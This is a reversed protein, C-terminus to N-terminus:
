RFWYGLILGIFGAILERINQNIETQTLLWFLVPLLLITVIAQIVTRQKIQDAERKDKVYQLVSKLKEPPLNPDYDELMKLIKSEFNDDQKLAFGMANEDQKLRRIIRKALNDIESDRSPKFKFFAYYIDFFNSFIIKM